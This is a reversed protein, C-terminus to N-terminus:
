AVARDATATSGAVNPVTTGTAASQLTCLDPWEPCITTDYVRDTKAHSESNFVDYRETHAQFWELINYKTNMQMTLVTKYITENNGVRIKRTATRINM